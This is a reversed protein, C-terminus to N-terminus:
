RAPVPGERDRYGIVPMEHMENQRPASAMDVFFVTAETDMARAIMLKENGTLLYPSGDGLLLIVPAPVTQGASIMDLTPQLDEDRMAARVEAEEMSEITWSDSNKLFAWIGLNLATLWGGSIKSQVDEIDLGLDLAVKPLKSAVEELDPSAWKITTERKALQIEAYVRDPIDKRWYKPAEEPPPDHCGDQWWQLDRKLQQAAVKQAIRFLRKEDM